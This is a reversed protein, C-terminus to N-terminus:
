EEDEEDEWCAEIMECVRARAGPTLAALCKEPISDLDFSERFDDWIQTYIWSRFFVDRLSKCDLCTKYSRPDGDWIGSTYEYKDGRNILNGCEYCSHQKKATRIKENCCSPGCGHDISTTCSCEM